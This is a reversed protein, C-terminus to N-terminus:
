KMEDRLFPNCSGMNRGTFGLIYLSPLVGTVVPVVGGFSYSMREGPPRLESELTLRFCSSRAELFTFIGALSVTATRRFRPLLLQRLLGM